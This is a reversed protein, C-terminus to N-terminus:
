LLTHSKHLLPISTLSKGDASVIYDFAEEDLIDRVQAAETGTTATYLHTYNPRTLVLALIVVTLVVAAVGSIILTKQRVSFKNWWELIRDLLARMQAPM